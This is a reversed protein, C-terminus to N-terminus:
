TSIQGSFLSVTDKFIFIFFKFFFFPFIFLISTLIHLFSYLALYPRGMRTFTTTAGFSEMAVMLEVAQETVVTRPPNPTQGLKTDKPVPTQAARPDLVVLSIPAQMSEADKVVQKAEGTVKGSPLGEEM